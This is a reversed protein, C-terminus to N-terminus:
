FNCKRFPFIIYKCIVNSKINVVIVNILCKNGRESQNDGSTSIKQTKDKESKEQQRRDDTKGLFKITCNM